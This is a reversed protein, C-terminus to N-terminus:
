GGLRELGRSVNVLFDQANAIFSTVSLSGRDRLKNVAFESIDVTYIFLPRVGGNGVRFSPAMNGTAITHLQTAVCVITTARRILARMADQGRYVDAHVEPLPGDDRISGTLVFPVGKRVCAAMIGDDVGYKEVFAPISGCARVRNIVDIHHYHGGPVLEQTYIDQGLATKFLAGELDHTALANGAQLAHAYGREILGAMADRADSDFSCAPGLVWLINGHEREYRLLEYLADYDRSYATERSRGTRFAFGDPGGSARAFGDMHVYVGEEGRETRGLVVMEGARLTRFERVSIQDGDVVALCDMRSEGALLWRGGLKFYEPYISTAHYGEPAVFDMPAPALRADPASQLDPASFDPPRYCPMDFM